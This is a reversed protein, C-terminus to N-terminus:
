ADRAGLASGIVVALLIPLLGWAVPGVIAALVGIVATGGALVYWRNANTTRVIPDITQTALDPPAEDRESQEVLATERARELEAEARARKEAMARDATSATEHAVELAVEREPPPMFPDAPAVEPEDRRPELKAFRGSTAPEPQAPTGADPRARELKLFRTLKSM